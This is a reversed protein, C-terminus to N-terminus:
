STVITDRFVKADGFKRQRVCIKTWRWGQQLRPRRVAGPQPFAVSWECPAGPVHQPSWLRTSLLVVHTTRLTPMGEDDGFELYLM